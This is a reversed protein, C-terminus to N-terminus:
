VQFKIKNIQFDKFIEKLVKDAFNFLETIPM